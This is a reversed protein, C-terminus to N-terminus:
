VTEGIPDTEHIRGGFEEVPEIGSQQNRENFKQLWECHENLIMADIATVTKEPGMKLRRRFKSLFQLKRGRNWGQDATFKEVASQLENATSNASYGLRTMAYGRLALFAANGPNEPLLRNCAGLLHNLLANNAATDEIIRFVLEEDYNHLHPRLVPLYSSDFFLTVANSFAEPDEIGRVCTDEMIHLAKLRQAAIRKYVFDILTHLCCRLETAYALEDASELYADAEDPVHVYLYRRLNKRYEGPELCVLDASLTKSAYDAVFDKVLGLISLRYIARFTHESLRIKPFVSRIWHEKAKNVDANKVACIKAVFEDPNHTFGMAKRVEAQTIGVRSAIEEVYGNEFSVCIRTTVGPVSTSLLSEIGATETTGANQFLWDTLPADSPKQTILWEKAIHCIHLYNPFPNKTAHKIDGTSTVSFYVKCDPHEPHNIYIRLLHDGLKTWPKVSFVIGTEDQLYAELDRLASSGPTRNQDLLEFVKAADLAAGPFSNKHFQHNLHFDVSHGHNPVANGAYLLWCQADKGDRGARGAEQYFSELSPPINFHLTFRIDPKDIGMGFAKTCALIRARNEKFDNQVKVPDFESGTGDEVSGYYVDVKQSEDPIAQCLATKVAKVGHVGGKLGAHPCFVLGSGSNSQLFPIPALGAASNTLATLVSPLVGLKAKGVEESVVWVDTGSAPLITPPSRVVKFKLNEREMRDPRVVDNESGFGLERRVDELVEFSATGTLALLPLRPWRCSFYRRANAGLRLYATRFDHGWESVCHAEDVVAYAFHVRADDKMQGLAVRFERIILREPSIFAFKLCGRVMLETTDRREVSSSMSNIFACCSIGNARLNDDQDKMLSKIPAVVASIGNQLLTPLQYTVSKGAGTPLLAIVSEGRLARTIIDIQKPRFASKRFINRLFFTLARELPEESVQLSLPDSFALEHQPVRRYYDSRVVVVCESAMLADLSRSVQRCVGFRMEVSLDIIVDPKFTLDETISTDLLQVIRIEPLVTEPSYLAYIQSLWERMDDAALQGVSPLDDRDIVVINWMPARISIHGGKVLELLVRQIRAVAFPMLALLRARRGADTQRLPEVANKNLFDVYPHNLFQQVGHHEPNIGHAAPIDKWLRHRYTKAWGSKLCAEDRKKDGALRAPLAHHPGDVEFILGRPLSGDSWGPLEVAIDVRQDPFDQTVVSNLPRQRLALQIGAPGLLSSLPGEWFTREAESDFKTNDEGIGFDPFVFGSSPQVAIDSASICLARGLREHMAEDVMETFNVTLAKHNQEGGESVQVLGTAEALASELNISSLTPLGRCLLNEFVAWEAPLTGRGGVDNDIVFHSLSSVVDMWDLTSPLGGERIDRWLAASVYGAHLAKM